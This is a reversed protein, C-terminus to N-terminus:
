YDIHKVENVQLSLIKGDSFARYELTKSGDKTWVYVHKGSTVPPYKIMHIDYVEGDADDQWKGTGILHTIQNVEFKIGNISLVDSM